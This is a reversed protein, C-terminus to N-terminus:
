ADSESALSAAVEDAVGQEFAAREEAPTLPPDKRCAALIGATDEAVSTARRVVFADGQQEVILRDGAALNLARRLNIPIAVRGNSTLKTRYRSM